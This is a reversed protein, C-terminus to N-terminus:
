KTSESWENWGNMWEKKWKNMKPNKLEGQMIIDGETVYSGTLINSENWVKSGWFSFRKKVIAHFLETEFNDWIWLKYIYIEVFTYYVLRADKM